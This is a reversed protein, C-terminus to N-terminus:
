GLMRLAQLDSGAFRSGEVFDSRIEREIIQEQCSPLATIKVPTATFYKGKDKLYADVQDQTGSVLGHDTGPSQGMCADPNSEFIRWVQIM